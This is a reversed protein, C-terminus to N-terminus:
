KAINDLKKLLLENMVRVKRTLSDEMLVIAPALPSKVYVVERSPDARGDKAWTFSVKLDKSLGHGLEEIRHYGLLEGEDDVIKSSSYYCGGVFQKYDFDFKMRDQREVKGSAIGSKSPPM